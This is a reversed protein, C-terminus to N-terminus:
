STLMEEIVIKMPNHFTVLDFASVQTGDRLLVFTNKLCDETRSDVAVLPFETCFLGIHVEPVNNKDISDKIYYHILACFNKVAADTVGHTKVEDYIISMMQEQQEKEPTIVEINATINKKFQKTYIGMANTGATAFSVINNVGLSQLKNATVEIMHVFTDGMNDVFAHSTNCPIVIKKCGLKLLLHESGSLVHDLNEYLSQNGTLLAETRDAIYPVMAVVIDPYQYDRLIELFLLTAAPGMGGVIGIKQAKTNQHAAISIIVPQHDQDSQVSSAAMVQSYFDIASDITPVEVYPLHEQYGGRNGNLMTEPVSISALNIHTLLAVEELLSCTIDSLNEEFEIEM